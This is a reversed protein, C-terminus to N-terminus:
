LFSFQPESLYNTFLGSVLELDKTVLDRDNKVVTAEM